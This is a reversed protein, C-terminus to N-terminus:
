DNQSTKQKKRARPNSDTDDINQNEFFDASAAIAPRVIDTRSHSSVGSPTVFSSPDFFKKFKFGSPTRSQKSQNAPFTVVPPPSRNPNQNQFILSFCIWFTQCFLCVYRTKDYSPFIMNEVQFTPIIKEIDTASVGDDLLDNILQNQDNQVDGIDDEDKSEQEFFFVKDYHFM